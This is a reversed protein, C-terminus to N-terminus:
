KEYKINCSLNILNQTISYAQGKFTRCGLLPKLRIAFLFRTMLAIWGADRKGAVHRRHSNWFYKRGNIKIENHCIFWRFFSHASQSSSVLCFKKSTMVLPSTYFLHATIVSNFRRTGYYSIYYNADSIQWSAPRKLNYHQLNSNTRNHLKQLRHVSALRTCTHRQIFSNQNNFCCKTTGNYKCCEAACWMPQTLM